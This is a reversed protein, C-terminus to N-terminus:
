TLNRWVQSINDYLLMVSGNRRLTRSGPEAFAFKTAAAGAGEYELELPIKNAINGGNVLIVIQGEANSISLGGIKLPSEETKGNEKKLIEEKEKATRAPTIRYIFAVKGGPTLTTQTGTVTIARALFRLRGEFLVAGTFTAAEAFM